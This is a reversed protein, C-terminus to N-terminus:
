AVADPHIDFPEVICATNGRLDQVCDRGQEDTWRITKNDLYFTVVEDINSAIKTGLCGHKVVFAKAAKEFELRNKSDRRNCTELCSICTVRVPYVNLILLHGKVDSMYVGAHEEPLPKM